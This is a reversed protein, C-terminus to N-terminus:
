VVHFRKLQLEAKVVFLATTHWGADELCLRM